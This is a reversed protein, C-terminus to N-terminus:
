RRGPCQDAGARCITPYMCGGRRTCTAPRPQLRGSRAQEATALAAACVDEVLEELQERECGDTRVCPLQISADSALAGRARLDPGALPQYLGGVTELGLLRQAVRMYLAMQFYRSELWKSGSRDSGVRGSKYDYVVAEGREGLDVRDIRGRLAVGEGLELEPLSEPLEPFGFPLELHTPELPSEQEAAHELYREIDAELRRRAAQARESAPSLPFEDGHRALAQRMLEKALRLKAPLIRASGSRERLGAYVDNLVAHALSGRLLPEPDPELGEANLLREVFWSVPCAAWRELSSASWLRRQRLEDLLRPDQLTPSRDRRAIGVGGAVAPLSDVEGLGRREREQWLRQECLDRVDDIFLSPPTSSGDDDCAHWSLFLREEPRSLTAYLLYREVALTQEHGSPRARVLGATERLREAALLQEPGALAPFVGEQLGCLFLARVRRARLAFPDLVAVAHEPTERRPLSLASLTEILGEAGGLLREDCLALERLEALAALGAQLSLAQEAEDEDLVAALGNRPASFLWLLDRQAREVLMLPGRGAAEAIRDIRELPWNEQEWLARAQVASQAGTRLAREELRDALEPRELVGPARLWALLDGLRAEASCGCRLLGVLARGLSTHAFPERQAVAHPVGAADLAEALTEAISAPARHVIAIEEPRMGGAILANARAAVLELEARESGGELLQVVDTPDLPQADAGQPDAEPALEFLRLEREQSEDEQKEDLEFLRMREPDRGGSNEFIRRELGHLMSRAQPAYYAANAALEIHEKAHPHLEQFAWARGAFAVRGREYALSVTVPADLVRSLTEIADLQLATLDDFGYLLVPSGPWLGPRRRLLDLAARARLEPDLRGLRRLRKRYADYVEGLREGVGVRETSSASSSSISQLQRPTVDALELEAIAAALAQALGIRPGGLQPAVEAILTCLMRERALQGLPQQALMPEATAACRVIREILGSFLMTRVGVVAGGRGALERRFRTVDAATPLVLLPQAGQARHRGLVDLVARAKGANAPGTILTLPM